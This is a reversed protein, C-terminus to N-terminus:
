SRATRSISTARAGSWSLTKTEFKEEGNAAAELPHALHVRGLSQVEAEHLVAYEPPYKARTVRRGALSTARSHVDHLKGIFTRKPKAM